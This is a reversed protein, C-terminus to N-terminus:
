GNSSKKISIIKWVVWSILRIPVLLVKVVDEIIIKLNKKLKDYLIIFLYLFVIKLM